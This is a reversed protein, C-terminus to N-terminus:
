EGPANTIVPTGDPARLLRAAAPARRRGAALGARRLVQRVFRRTEPYPPVGGFRDVAGEGANYAALARVVDGAYRDLLWRLYRAGGELNEEPDSPDAVGFRRATEPMLQALGVAGARSVAGPERASEEEVLAALLRPDLGHRRAVREILRQYPPGIPDRGAGALLEEPGAAFALALVVPLALPIRRGRHTM